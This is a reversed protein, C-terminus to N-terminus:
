ISQHRVTGSASATTRRTSEIIWFYVRFGDTFQAPELHKSPPSTAEWTGACQRMEGDRRRLSSRTTCHMTCGGLHALYDYTRPRCMKVVVDPLCAEVIAPHRRGGLMKASKIIGCDRVFFMQYSVKIVNDSLVARIIKLGAAAVNRSM